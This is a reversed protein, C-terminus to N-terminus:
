RSAKGRAREFWYLFFLLTASVMAIVFVSPWIAQVGYRHIFVGSALPGAMPGLNTVFSTFANIRGRHTLPTQSAVYVNINTAALIEGWTWVITSALVNITSPGFSLMGFGFGYLMAAAFILLLPPVKATIKTLLLTFVVVTLGNTTMAAGFLEPGSQGIKSNLFLPLSFMQQSYVFNMIAVLLSFIVVNPRKALLSIMSASSADELSTPKETAQPTAKNTEPVFRILLFISISLALANGLFMFQPATRFLFGAAIPGISFGINNGWYLLAYAQKRKEPGVLDAVLAGSIPWTM